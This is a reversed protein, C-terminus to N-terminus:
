RPLLEFVPHRAAEAVFEEVPSDKRAAFYPRTTSAIRVYEKLVPGAEAASAERVGYRRTTGRRTLAVEGAARANLVWSVVGFPSVLWRRGDYEPVTVPNSRPVGSTRGRVTLVYTSPVVGARVFVSMISDVARSTRSRHFTRAPRPDPTEDPM